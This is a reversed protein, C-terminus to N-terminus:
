RAPRPCSRRSGRRRGCPRARRCRRPRGGRRGRAALQRRLELRPQRLAAVGGGVAHDRGVAVRDRAAEHEGIPLATRSRRSPRPAARAAPRRRAVHGLRTKPTARPAETRARDRDRDARDEEQEHDPQRASAGTAPAPLATARPTRATRPVAASAQQESATIAPTTLLAREADHELARRGGAHREPGREVPCIMSSTSPVRNPVTQPMRISTQSPKPARAAPCATRRAGAPAAGRTPRRWRARAAARSPGCTRERQERQREAEEHDRGREGPVGAQSFGVATSNGALM